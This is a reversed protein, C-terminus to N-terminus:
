NKLFKNWKINEKIAFNIKERTNLM